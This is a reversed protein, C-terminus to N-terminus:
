KRRKKRRSIILKDSRQPRRTKLGKASQGWPSVPSRGGSTKGEGGGHPHDVPNMAVGRTQPRKGRWRNRGAKGIKINKQDPNSVSGITAVCDSRVKRTEGSALKLIAYDGDFGTLTVSSGASRALKAGNGPLLEVNHISTGPPIDSLELCNGIKIEVNKGSEVKDGVNLNQPCIIYNMVSDEYKILAIYGTRNPDYEIREVVASMNKKKRLFDIVRYKHKQGGGKHRSTIRGANNRGGTVSQGKTLPKYSAGKWLDSKDVIVTGRTSKTYPKFTKLAM